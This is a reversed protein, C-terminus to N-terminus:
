GPTAATSPRCVRLNAVVPVAPATAQKSSPFAWFQWHNSFQEHGTELTLRLELKRASTTSGADLPISGISSVKGLDAEVGTLVAGAIRQGGDLLEWSLRGNHVAGAGYNSVLVGVQRPEGAWLTRNDVGADLMLLVPSNLVRGEEPTIGKPTWFYDFWGEEWSDGEGTGGPYDVILWYHYGSVDGNARVKEIQYKRGLQQLRQSNHVYSPYLSELHNEEVWKAKADLWTPQLVGTFKQKLSIDPLSCYYQGFEHRVTPRDAPAGRYLSVMDTPRMDFGDNSLILTAPALQKATKYFDAISALFEAREPDTKLWDLNFENGFALSLLSPHNRYARLASTLERKLFDRHAFFYQTYAAPLEAMVLIGAEDAAEFYAAPPTMSHFRVANFGFSRSLKLREAFVQKSSPPFGTLVEVNDDGYGRLYLPKGNLLITGGRTTVERYGFRQELRDIPRGQDLLQISATLM